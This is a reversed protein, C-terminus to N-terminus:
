FLAIIHVLIRSTIKQQNYKRYKVTLTFKNETHDLRVTM